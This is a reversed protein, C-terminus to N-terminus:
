GLPSCDQGHALERRSLLPWRERKLRTGGFWLSM